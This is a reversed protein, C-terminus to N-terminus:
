GQEKEFYLFPEGALTFRRGPFTFGMFKLWKIALHNSEHVLNWLRHYGDTLEHMEHQGMKLFARRAEKGDLANTALLWPTGDRSLATHATIGWVAVLEADLYGAKARFSKGLVEILAKHLPQGGAMAEVELRDIPRLNRALRLADKKQAPRIEIRTM